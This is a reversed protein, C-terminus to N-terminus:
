LNANMIRLTEQHKILYLPLVFHLPIGAFVHIRPMLGLLTGHMVPLLMYRRVTQLYRRKDVVRRVHVFYIGIYMLSLLFHSATYPIALNTTDFLNLRENFLSYALIFMYNWFLMIATPYMLFLSIGKYDPVIERLFLGIIHLQYISKCLPCLIDQDPRITTIRWTSLCDKHVYAVTGKCLCPQLLPNIKCDLTGEDLCFRCEM